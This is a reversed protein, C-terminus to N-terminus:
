NWKKRIEQVKIIYELACIFLLLMLVDGKRLGNQIPFAVSKGIRDKSSM